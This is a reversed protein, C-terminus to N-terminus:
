IQARRMAINSAATREKEGSGRAVDTANSAEVWTGYADFPQPALLFGYVGPLDTVAVPM